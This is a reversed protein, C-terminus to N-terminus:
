PAVRLSCFFAFQWSGDTFRPTCFRVCWKLPAVIRRADM